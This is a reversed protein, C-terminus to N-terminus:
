NRYFYHESSGSITEFAPLQVKAIRELNDKVQQNKFGLQAEYSVHQWKCGGCIGYHECVVPVHDKSLAQINIAQAQKFKKKNRIIKLDCVDGPAVQGQVFIIEDNVKAICKAEAAYALITVGEIIQQTKDKRRSM